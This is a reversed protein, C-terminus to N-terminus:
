FLDTNQGCMTNVHKQLEVLFFNLLLHKAFHVTFYANVM